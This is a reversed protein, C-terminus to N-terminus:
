QYSKKEEIDLKHDDGKLKNFNFYYTTNDQGVVIREAKLNKDSWPAEKLLIPL